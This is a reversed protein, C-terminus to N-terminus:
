KGVYTNYIYIHSGEEDLAQLAALAGEEDRLLDLARIAAMNGAAARM